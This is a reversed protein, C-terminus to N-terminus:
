LVRVISDKRVFSVSDVLEAEQNAWVARDVVLVATKLPVLAPVVHPVFQLVQM